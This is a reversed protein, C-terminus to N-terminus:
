LSMTCDLEKAAAHLFEISMGNSLRNHAEWSLCKEVDAQWDIVYMNFFHYSPNPNHNHNHIGDIRALKPSPRISGTHLIDRLVSTSLARVLASPHSLCQVTAPLRCQM